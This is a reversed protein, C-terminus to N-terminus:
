VNLADEVFIILEYLKRHVDENSSNNEISIPDTMEMLENLKILIEDKM